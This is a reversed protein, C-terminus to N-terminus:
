NPFVVQMVKVYNEKDKELRAIQLDIEKLEPDGTFWKVISLNKELEVKKTSLAEIEEEIRKVEKVYM